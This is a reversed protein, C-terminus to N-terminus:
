SSSSSPNPVSSASAELFMGAMNTVQSCDWRSIDENFSDNGDFLVNMRTVQGVNWDSIHGWRTQAQERGGFDLDTGHFRCWLYVAEYITDDTLPEGNQLM